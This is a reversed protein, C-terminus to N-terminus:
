HMYLYVVLGGLDAGVPITGGRVTLILTVAAPFELEDTSSVPFADHFSRGALAVDLGVGLGTPNARVVVGDPRTYAEWGLDLTRGVGFPAWGLKSLQSCYRAGQPLTCIRLTSDQAGAALTPGLTWRMARLVAHARNHPAYPLVPYDAFLDSEFTAM